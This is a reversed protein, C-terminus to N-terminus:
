ELVLMFVNRLMQKLLCQLNTLCNFNHDALISFFFPRPQKWLRIRQLFHNKVAQSSQRARFWHSNQLPPPSTREEQSESPLLSEAGFPNKRGLADAAAMVKMESSFCGNWGKLTWHACLYDCGLSRLCFDDMLDSFVFNPYSLPPTPPDDM